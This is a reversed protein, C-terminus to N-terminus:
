YLSGTYWSRDIRAPLELAEFPHCKGWEGNTPPHLCPCHYSPPCCFFEPLGTRIHEDKAVALGDRYYYDIGHVHHGEFPRFAQVSPWTLM